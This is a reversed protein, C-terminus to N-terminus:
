QAVERPSLGIQDLRKFVIARARPLFGALEPAPRAIVFKRLTADAVVRDIRESEAHLWVLNRHVKM